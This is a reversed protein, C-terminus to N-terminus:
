GHLLLDRYAGSIQALLAYEAAIWQEGARELAFTRVAGLSSAAVVAKEALQPAFVTPLLVLQWGPRVDDPDDIQPDYFLDRAASDGAATLQALVGLGRRADAVSVARAEAWGLEADLLTGLVSTPGDTVVLLLPGDLEAIQKAPNRYTAVVPGIRGAAGDLADALSELSEGGRWAAVAAAYTAWWAADIGDGDHTAVIARREGAVAAIPSGEPAAVILSAGRAVAAQLATVLVSEAGTVSVILVVDAARPLPSGGDLVPAPVASPAGLETLLTCLAEAYEIPAMDSVLVVCTGVDSSTLQPTAPLGARALARVRAGTGALAYLRAGGPGSLAGPDDLDTM